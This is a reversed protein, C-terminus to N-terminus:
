CDCEGRPKIVGCLTDLLDLGGTPSGVFRIEIDFEQDLIQVPHDNPLTARFGYDRKGLVATGFEAMPTETGFIRRVRSGVSSQVPLPTGLALESTQFDVGVVTAVFLTDDDQELEVEDGNTFASVNSVEVFNQAAAANSTVNEDKNPDYVKYSCTAGDNSTDLPNENVVDTPAVFEIVSDSEFPYKERVAM